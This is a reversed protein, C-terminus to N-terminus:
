GDALVRSTVAGFEGHGEHRWYYMIKCAGGELETLVVRAPCNCKVSRKTNLRLKSQPLDTSHKSTYSGAHHCTFTIKEVVPSTRARKRRKLPPAHAAEDPTM